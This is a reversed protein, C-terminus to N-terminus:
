ISRGKLYIKLLIKIQRFWLQWPMTNDGNSLKKLGTCEDQIASFVESCLRFPVPSIYLEKRGPRLTRKRFLPVQDNESGLEFNKRLALAQELSWSCKGERFHHFRVGDRLFIERKKILSVYKAVTHCDSCVRANRIVRIPVSSGTKILGYTIALKETHSMLLKEKEEAEVNQYVCNINPVYGFNRMESVLQYLEFYIKGEDSHPRGEETFVHVAEGIQIWSWMFGREVGKVKMLDEIDEVDEWRNSITYLNMMLIYNSSNYPEMEILHKFAVEAYKVNDYVRCSALLAGWISADPKLPLTRIFDWAEDIYGARGLLDVMCSYHEITPIIKYDTNMSDFYKWGEPVLGSNKCGSLLATFTVADPLIQLEQMEDFLSIAKEGLSYMSFGMIMCNWCALTKNRIMKFVTYAPKLCGSKCYMDILATAVYIDDILGNKLSVCHIERGKQLLSLHGITQLLTSITAYNPQVGEKQMKVFLELSEKYKGQQSCGSILATWSVVNPSLGSSKIRDVVALAEDTYGWMSYGSVLSNWTVLDPKIKEEEMQNLLKKSNEFLGKFSYGSILSNWTCINRNKVHDFTAHASALQDNKLYMDVLSTGVYVDYDLGNRIIYGHIQKGIKLIGLQIVVQLVSTVSSSNPKSGKDQMRQLISLMGDYTGHLAHGSLICNWTVIDPKEDSLEMQGLLDLADTLYGYSTYSSIISNWSSSNRNKMSNFVKRALEIEKNRSYVTILSNSISLDSELGLRLVYGHVQKGEDIAGVKGCAQLMKVITVSSVKACEFQMERFREFGKVWGESRLNVMVVENWLLANRDSLEDFVRNASDVGWCRQYFSMLASMLYVDKDFGKKILCAHIELGLRLGMVSECIKLVLTLVRSDFSVGKRSLEIFVEIVRIRDGGFCEFAQLFSKWEAYNRDFGLFFVMAASKFDGFLLYSSILTEYDFNIKKGM